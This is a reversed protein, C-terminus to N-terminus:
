FRGEARNRCRRLRLNYLVPLINALMVALCGESNRTLRAMSIFFLFSILHFICKMRMQYFFLPVSRNRPLLKKIM